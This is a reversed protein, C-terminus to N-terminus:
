MGLLSYIYWYPRYIHIYSITFFHLCIIHTMILVCGVLRGMGGVNGSYSYSWPQYSICLFLYPVDWEGDLKEKKIRIINWRRSPWGKFGKKKNIYHWCILLFLFIHSFRKLNTVWRRIDRKCVCWLWTPREKRHEEWLRSCERNENKKEICLLIFLLFIVYINAMLYSEQWGM